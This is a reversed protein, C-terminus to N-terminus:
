PQLADELTSHALRIGSYATQIWRAVADLLERLDLTMAQLEEEKGEGREKGEWAAVVKQVMHMADRTSRMADRVESDLPTPIMVVGSGRRSARASKGGSTAGTSSSPRKPTKRTTKSGCVVGADGGGDRSAASSSLRARFPPPTAKGGGGGGGGRGGEGGGSGIIRRVAASRPRQAAAPVDGACSNNRGSTYSARKSGRGRTPPSDPVKAISSLTRSVRSMGAGGPHLDVHSLGCDSHEYGGLPQHGAPHWLPKGPPTHDRGELHIGTITHTGIEGIFTHSRMEKEYSDMKGQVEV